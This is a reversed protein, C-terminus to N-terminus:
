FAPLSNGEIGVGSLPHAFELRSAHLLLREAMGSAEDHAYFADGLIPHGISAMHVRLQHSRGTLPYLAVRSTNHAVDRQLVHYRTLAPKGQAYDVKQLPRNPWDCILPLAVEGSASEVLGHVVALYAKHVRRQEFQMSLVRHSEAGLAVVMIGSTDMDLRHVIRADAYEAQLRSIVSDHNAPHRGPVSLLGSPKEVLLFAADRHIIHLEDRCAPVIHPEANSM